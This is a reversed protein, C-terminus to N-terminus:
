PANPDSNHVWIVVTAHAYIPGYVELAFRIWHIGKFRRITRGLERPTPDTPDHATIEKWQQIWAYAAVDDSWVNVKSLSIQATVELKSFFKMSLPLQPPPEYNSYIKNLELPIDVLISTLHGWEDPNNESGWAFQKGLIEHVHHM